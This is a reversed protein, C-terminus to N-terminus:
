FHISLHFPACDIYIMYECANVAKMSHTRAVHRSTVMRAALSARPLERSLENGAFSPLSHHVLMLLLPSHEYHVEM